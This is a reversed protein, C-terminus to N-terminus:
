QCTETFTLRKRRANREQVIAPVTAHPPYALIAGCCFAVTVCAGGDGVAASGEEGFAGAASGGAAAAAAGDAGLEGAGVGVAGFVGLEVADAGGVEEV